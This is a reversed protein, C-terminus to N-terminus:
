RTEHLNIQVRTLSKELRDPIVVLLGSNKHVNECVGHFSQHSTASCGDQPYYYFDDSDLYNDLQISSPVFYVDFWSDTDNISVSYEYSTGDEKLTCIPIFQAYSSTTATQGAHKITPFVSIYPDDYLQTGQALAVKNRITDIAYRYLVPKWSSECNSFEHKLEVYSKARQYQLQNTNYVQLASVDFPDEFHANEALPLGNWVNTVDFLINGPYSDWEDQLHVYISYKNIDQDYLFDSVLHGFFVNSLILVFATVPLVFYLITKNKM